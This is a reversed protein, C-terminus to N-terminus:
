ATPGVFPLHLALSRHVSLLDRQLHSNTSSRVKYDDQVKDVAITVFEISGSTIMSAAALRPANYELVAVSM